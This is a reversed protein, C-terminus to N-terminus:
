ESIEAEILKHPDPEDDKEIQKQKRAQPTLAEFMPSSKKGSAAGTAGAVVKQLTDTVEKYEKLSEIRMAPKPNKSPDLIYNRMEEIHEVNAVSVMNTLFEVQELVSKVVKAQVRERLSSMMKERDHMWGKLAATLVIQELLYQPYQKQIEVFSYGLMMLEYLKMAESEPVAGKTKYKRL